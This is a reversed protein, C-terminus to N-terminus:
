LITLFVLKKQGKLASFMGLLAMAATAVATKFLETRRM